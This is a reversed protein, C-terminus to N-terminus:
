KGPLEASVSPHGHYAKAKAEDFVRGMNLTPHIWQGSQMKTAGADKLHEELSKNYLGSTKPDTPSYNVQAKPTSAPSVSTKAHNIVNLMSGASQQMFKANDAQHEPSTLVAKQQNAINDLDNAKANGGLLMSAGAVGAALNSKFGKELKEQEIYEPFSKKLEKELEPTLSKKLSKLLTKAWTKEGKREPTKQTSIDGYESPKYDMKKPINSYGEIMHVPLDQKKVSVFNGGPLIANGESDSTILHEHSSPVSEGVNHLIKDIKSPMTNKVHTDSNPNQSNMTNPTITQNNIFDQHEKSPNLIPDEEPKLRLGQLLEEKTAFPSHVSIVPFKTKLINYTEQDMNPAYKQARRELIHEPNTNPDMDSVIRQKVIDNAEKKISDPLASNLHIGSNLLPTIIKGIAYKREEPNTAKSVVHEIAPKFHSAEKLTRVGTDLMDSLNNSAEDYRIVRGGFSDLHNKLEEQSVIGHKLFDPLHIRDRIAEKEFPQGDNLKDQLYQIPQAKEKPVTFVEEERDMGSLKARPELQWIHVKEGAHGKNRLAQSFAEHILHSPHMGKFLIQNVKEINEPKLGLDVKNEKETDEIQKVLHQGFDSQIEDIHVGDTGNTYRVWGLTDPGVPHGSKKSINYLKRFDDLVGANKLEAKIEPTINLQFVKSPQSTDHRQIKPKYVSTTIDYNLKPLKDIHEQIKNSAIFGKADKLHNIGLASPNLGNAELIKYSAVGGEREILDRARRLKETNPSFSVPGEDVAHMIKHQALARVLLKKHLNQMKPNASTKLTAITEPHIKFIGGMNKFSAAKIANKDGVKIKENFEKNIEPIVEPYYTSIATGASPYKLYNQKLAELPLVEASYRSELIQKVAPHSVKGETVLRKFEKGAEPNQHNMRNLSNIDFTPSNSNLKEAAVEALMKPDAFIHVNDFNVSVLERELQPNDAFFGNQRAVNFAHPDRNRANKIINNKFETIKDPNNEKIDQYVQNLQESNFDDLHNLQYNLRDQPSVLHKKDERLMWGPKQLHPSEELIKDQGPTLIMRSAKDALKQGETWEPHDKAYTLIKDRFANKAEETRFPYTLVSNQVGENLTWRMQKNIDEMDFSSLSKKMVAYQPTKTKIKGNLLDAIRQPNFKPMTTIENKVPKNTDVSEIKKKPKNFDAYNITPHPEKPAPAMESYNLTPGEPKQVPKNFEEYNIVPAETMDKEYKVTVPELQKTRAFKSYHPPPAMGPKNFTLNAREREYMNAIDPPILIPKEQGHNILNGYKKMFRSLKVDNEDRSAM